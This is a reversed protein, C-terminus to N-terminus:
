VGQYLHINKNQFFMRFEREPPDTPYRDRKRRKLPSVEDTLLKWGM